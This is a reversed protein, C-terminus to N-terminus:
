RREITFKPQQKRNPPLSLRPSDKWTDYSGKGLPPNWHSPASAKLHKMLGFISITRSVVELAWFKTSLKEIELWLICHSQGGKCNELPYWPIHWQNWCWLGQHQSGWGGNKITFFFGLHSVIAKPFRRLGTCKTPLPHPHPISSSSSIRLNQYSFYCIHYLYACQIHYIYKLYKQYLKSRLVHLKIYFHDSCWWSSSRLAVELKRGKSLVDVFVDHISQLLLSKSVAFNSTKKTSKELQLTSLQQMNCTDPCWARHEKQRLHWQLPPTHWDIPLPQFITSITATTMLNAELLYWVHLPLTYMCPPFHHTKKKESAGLFFRRLIGAPSPGSKWHLSFMVAKSLSDSWSLERWHLSVLRIIKLLLSHCDKKWCKSYRVKKHKVYM